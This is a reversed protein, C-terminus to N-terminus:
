QKIFKKVVQGEDAVLVLYYMGPSLASVDIMPDPNQVILVTSNKSDRISLVRPRFTDPWEMKIVEKAPSPYVAVSVDAMVNLGTQFDYEALYNASYMGMDENKFLFEMIIMVPVKIDEAYWNYSVDEFVGLYEMPEGADFRYWSHVTSVTKVRLVETFTGAPTTISGWADAEVVVNGSDRMVHYGFDIGYMLMEFDYTFDDGYAMPFVLDTLADYWTSFSSNGTQHWGLALLDRSDSNSRYYSYPGFGTENVNRICVDAQAVIATDAYPTTAPDVGIAHEGEFFDEGDITEFNWVQNPGAPGPDITNVLTYGDIRYNDGIAFNLNNELVIQAFLAQVVFLLAM